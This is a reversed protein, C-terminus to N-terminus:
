KLYVCRHWLMYKQLDWNAPLHSRDFLAIDVSFNKSASLHVGIEDTLIKYLRIDINKYLFQLISNIITAQLESCGMVAEPTLEKNVLRRFNRYYYKKGDIIDRVLYDPIIELQTEM